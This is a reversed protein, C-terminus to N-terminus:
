NKFKFYLIIIIMFLLLAIIFGLILKNTVVRRAMNTLTKRAKTLNDDVDRVNNRARSITDRQSRLDVMIDAGLAETELATRKAAELKDAGSRLKDTTDLLRARHDASAGGFDEGTSRGAFLDDRATGSTFNTKVRKFDKRLSDVDGRFRQLKPQLSAKVSPPLSRLEMEMQKLSTDAGSFDKEIESILIAGKERTQSPLESIKRSIATSYACYDEEYTEFMESM